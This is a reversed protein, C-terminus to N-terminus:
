ELLSAIREVYASPYAIVALRNTGRVGIQSILFHELSTFTQALVDHDIVRESIDAMSYRRKWANRLAAVIVPWSEENVIGDLESEEHWAFVIRGLPASQESAIQSASLRAIAEASLKHHVGEPEIYYTRGSEGDPRPRRPIADLLAVRSNGLWNAALDGFSV